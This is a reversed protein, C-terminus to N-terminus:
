LKCRLKAMSARCDDHTSNEGTMPLYQQAKSQEAEAHPQNRKTKIKSHKPPATRDAADCVASDCFFFCGAMHKVLFLIHVSRRLQIAM